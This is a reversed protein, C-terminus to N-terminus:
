TTLSREPRRGARLGVHGDRPGRHGGGVPWGPGLGLHELPASAWGLRWLYSAPAFAARGGGGPLQPRPSAALVSSTWRPARTGAVWCLLPVLARAGPQSPLRGAAGPARQCGLWGPSPLTSAPREEAGPLFSNVDACGPFRTSATAGARRALGPRQPLLRHLGRGSAAGQRAHPPCSLSPAPLAQQSLDERHLCLAEGAPFVVGVRTQLSRGLNGTQVPAIRCLLNTGFGKLLTPM